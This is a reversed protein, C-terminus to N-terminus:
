QARKLQIWFKSGKGPESELGVHGGMREAARHVIALGMGTGEREHVLGVRQFMGFLRRQDDLSIGVGNDEIWLRVRLDAPKTWIRVRPVTDPAVFKIANSLLNSLCLTLFGEHGLVPLLPSQIEIEAKNSQFEPYDGVVSRVLADLDLAHLEIPTRTVRGYNLVDVILTDLRHASTTIRRLFDMGEKGLKDGFNELLIESYGHMSRLPARLDHSLTYSFAELESVSNRLEATREAVTDELHERVRQLEQEVRKRESVDFCIGRLKLKGEDEIVSVSERLWVLKRQSSIMRYECVYGQHSAIAGALMNLIRERDENAVHNEWFDPWYLWHEVPYGLLPEIQKSIFTRQGSDADAEWVAGQVSNIFAQFEERQRQLEAELHRQEGDDLILSHFLGPRFPRSELPSTIFQVPCLGGTRTRLKLRVSSQKRKLRCEKLHELFLSSEGGTLYASCPVNADRGEKYGFLRCACSNMEVIIGSANILLQPLPTSDFLAQRGTKGRKLEALESRLKENEMVRATLDMELSAIRRECEILRAPPDEPAGATAARQAEGSRKRAAWGGSRLRSRTAFRSPGNSMQRASSSRTPSPDRRRM